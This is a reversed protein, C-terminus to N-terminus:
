APNRTGLIIDPINSHKIFVQWIFLYILRVCTFLHFKEEKRHFASQRWVKKKAKSEAALDLGGLKRM